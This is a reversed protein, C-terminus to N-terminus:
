RTKEFKVVQDGCRLFYVGVQLEELSIRTINQKLPISLIERGVMDFVIINEAESKISEVYIEHSAPNPFVSIKNRKNLGNNDTLLPTDKVLFDDIYVIQGGYGKNSFNITVSPEGAFQLLSISDKIWHYTENPMWYYNNDFGAINALQAGGKKFVMTETGGCAKAYVILTDNNVTNRRQYSRYFFLKPNNTNSLDVPPIYFKTELGQDDYNWNNFQMYDDNFGSSGTAWYKRLWNNGDLNPDIAYCGFPYTFENSDGVPEHYPLSQSPNISMFNSKVLTDIGGANYAILIIDYNGPNAYSVIPNFNNSFNPTGGNFIWQVSDVTGCSNNYFQILEGPCSQNNNVQFLAVPPLMFSAPTQSYFDSEWVGRGFTAARIKGLNYQVEIDNVICAPMGDNFYQWTLFSDDKYFVGGDTAAYMAGAVGNQLVIKNVSINPIGASINNWTQGANSSYFVKNNNSYGRFSVWIHEENSPDVALHAINASDVPLGNTINIFNSDGTKSVYVSDSYCVYIYDPNARAINLATPSEFFSNVPNYPTVVFPQYTLSNDMSRYINSYSGYYSINQTCENYHFDHQNYSINGIEPSTSLYFSQGANTTFNPTQHTIWFISDNLPSMCSNFSEVFQTFTQSIGNNGLMFPPVDLTSALIKYNNQQSNSMTYLHGLQMNNTINEFSNANNYSVYLGGDNCYYIISDNFPSFAIGRQDAHMYPISSSYTQSVQVFPSTANEKKYTARYGYIFRDETKQSAIIQPCVQGAVTELLSFSLGSDISKYIKTTPNFGSTNTLGNVMLYLVNPAAKTTRVFNEYHWQNTNPFGINIQSYNNGGDNSRYYNLGTAYVINTDTPHFRVSRVDDNIVKVWNVGANDTKYLGNNTAALLMNPNLPNIILDAITIEQAGTFSLGTPSWSQGGDATKYIGLSNFPMDQNHMGTALYLINPNTYDIVLCSVSQTPLNETIPTYSQGNNLTLWVGSNNSCVYFKGPILTDFTISTTRGVDNLIAGAASVYNWNANRTSAQHNSKFLAVADEFPGFSLKNPNFKNRQKCMLKLQKKTEPNNSESPLFQNG